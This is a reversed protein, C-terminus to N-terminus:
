RLILVRRVKTLGTAVQSWTVGRDASVYVSGDSAGFATLSGDPLADLCFTDINDDFWGPGATSCREFAGGSLEARYVAALGGRPGSSASVLVQDGCVVVSRSYRAELGETRQAWTRGQDDSVALGEACAALVIGEATTVQHVDADIDITPGWADSGPGRHLIGGVHVNVYIDDDWNAMSRTAPPGGWPTYWRDRGQVEDFGPVPEFGDGELKFLRAGESGILLDHDMNTISSPQFSGFRTVERWEGGEERWLESREVIAWADSRAPALHTIERGELAIPGPEGEEVFTHLGDAAAVLVRSM